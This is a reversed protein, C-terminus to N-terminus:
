QPTEVIRDIASVLDEAYLGELITRSFNLEEDLLFVKYLDEFGLVIAVVGKHLRGNVQFLLAKDAVNKWNHAGWSGVVLPQTLLQKKTVNPDFDREAKALINKAKKVIETKNM